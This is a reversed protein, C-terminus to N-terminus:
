TIPDYEDYFDSSSDEDDSSDSDTHCVGPAGYALRNTSGINTSRLPLKQNRVDDETELEWRDFDLYLFPPKIKSSLLRPWEVKQMKTLHIVVEGGHVKWNSSEPIVVDFLNLELQYNFEDTLCRFFVQREGIMVTENQVGRLQIALTVDGEHQSWLTKPSVCPLEDFSLLPPPESGLEIRPLQITQQGSGTL